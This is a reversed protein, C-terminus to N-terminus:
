AAAPPRATSRRAAVPASRLARRQPRVGMRRAPTSGCSSGCRRRASGRRGCRMVEPAGTCQLSV